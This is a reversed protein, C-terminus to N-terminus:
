PSPLLRSFCDAFLTWSDASEKGHCSENCGKNWCYQEKVSPDIDIGLLHFAEHIITRPLEKLHDDRWQSPCLVVPKGRGQEYAVASLTGDFCVPDTCTGGAFMIKNREVLEAAEIINKKIEARTPPNSTLIRNAMREAYEPGGVAACKRQIAVPASGIPAPEAMRMVKDAVEDAECEYPDGPSSITPKRQVPPPLIPIRAFDFGTNTSTARRLWLPNVPPAQAPRQSAPKPAPPHAASPRPKRDFTFM